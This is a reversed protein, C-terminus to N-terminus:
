WKYNYADRGASFLSSGGKLFGGILASTGQSRSIGAQTRYSQAEQRYNLNSTDIGREARTTASSALAMGTPSAADLGRSSRVADIASLTGMLDRRREADAQDAATLSAKANAEQQAAQAQSQNNASIGGM